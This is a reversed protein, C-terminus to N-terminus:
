LRRLLELGSAGPMVVDSLVLDPEFSEVLVEAERVGAAAHCTFGWFSLRRTLIERLAPEDDVVLVRVAEPMM